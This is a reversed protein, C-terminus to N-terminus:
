PWRDLNVFRIDIDNHGVIGFSPKERALLNVIIVDVLNRWDGRASLGHRVCRPSAVCNIVTACRRLYCAFVASAATTFARVIELDGRRLSFSHQPKGISPLRMEEAAIFQWASARAAVVNFLALWAREQHFCAPVADLARKAVKALGGFLSTTLLLLVLDPSGDSRSKRAM